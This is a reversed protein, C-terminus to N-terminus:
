SAPARPHNDQSPRGCRRFGPLLVGLVLAGVVCFVGGSIISFQPSVATAVGGSELDGLRPGGEVVAMQVSSIRTRFRGTVATQVITSRLVASIVDAWGAAGLLVLAVWLLHAFGFAVIIAGWAVVVVIVTRGLHRVENLWGSTLSGVLAGAAPVAYLLGPSAPGGHYVTKTLAPFLARPLGFVTAFLDVL